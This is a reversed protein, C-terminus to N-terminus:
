RPRRDLSTKLQVGCITDLAHDLEARRVLALDRARGGDLLAPLLQRVQQVYAAVVEDLSTAPVGVSFGLTRWPRDFDRPEAM